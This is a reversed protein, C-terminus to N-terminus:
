ISEDWKLRFTAPNIDEHGKRKRTQRGLVTMGPLKRNKAVLCLGGGWGVGGRGGGRWGGRGGVAKLVRVRFKM